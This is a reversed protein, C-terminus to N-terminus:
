EESENLQTSRHLMRSLIQQVRGMLEERPIDNDELVIKVQYTFSSLLNVAQSAEIYAGLIQLRRAESDSLKRRTEILEGLEKWDLAASDGDAREIVECIRCQILAIEARQSLLAPDSLAAAFNDGLNSPLHKSYRGHKFSPSAAGALSKGGHRDCRSRGKMPPKQCPQGQRNKAGCVRTSQNM